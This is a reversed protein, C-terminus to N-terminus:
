NHSALRERHTFTHTAQIYAHTDTMYSHMAQIINTHGTQIHTHIAQIHIYPRNTYTHGAIYSYMYVCCTNVPRQQLWTLNGASLSSHSRHRGQCLHVRRRRLCGPHRLAATHRLARLVVVVVCRGSLLLAADVQVVVATAPIIAPTTATLLCSLM